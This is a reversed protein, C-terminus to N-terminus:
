WSRKLQSGEPITSITQGTGTTDSREVPTAESLWRSIEAIGEPDNSFFDKVANGKPAFIERLHLLAVEFSVSRTFFAPILILSPSHKRRVLAELQV